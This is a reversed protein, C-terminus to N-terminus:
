NVCSISVEKMINYEHLEKADELEQGSYILKQVLCGESETIKAKLEAVTQWLEVDVEISKGTFFKIFIKM